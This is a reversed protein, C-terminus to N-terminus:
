CISLLGDRYLLFVQFCQCQGISFDILPLKGINLMADSLFARLEAM